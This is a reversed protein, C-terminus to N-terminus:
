SVVAITTQSFSTGEVQWAYCGAAAAYTYSPWGRWPVGTPTGAELLDLEPNLAVERALSFPATISLL